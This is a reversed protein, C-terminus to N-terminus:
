PQHAVAAAPLPRPARVAIEGSWVGVRGACQDRGPGAVAQVLEQLHHGRPESEVRSSDRDGEIAALIEIALLARTHITDRTTEAVDRGVAFDDDFGIHWPAEDLPEGGRHPLLLLRMCVLRAM